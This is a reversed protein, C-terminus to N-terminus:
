LNNLNLIFLDIFQQKCLNELTLMTCTEDSNVTESSSLLFIKEVCKTIIFSRISLDIPEIDSM